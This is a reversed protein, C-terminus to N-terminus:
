IFLILIFYREVAKAINNGVKKVVKADNNNLVVSQNLVQRYQTYSQQVLPAEDVLLLQKRGSIPASSCSIVLLSIFIISLLKKLKM